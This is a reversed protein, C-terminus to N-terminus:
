CQLKQGAIEHCDNEAGGAQSLNMTRVGRRDAFGRYSVTHVTYGTFEIYKLYILKATSPSISNLLQKHFCLSPVQLFFVFSAFQKSHPDSAIHVLVTGNASLKM